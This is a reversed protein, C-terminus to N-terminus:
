YILHASLVAGGDWCTEKSKCHTTEIITVFADKILVAYDLLDYYCTHSFTMMYLPQFSPNLPLMSCINLSVPEKSSIM